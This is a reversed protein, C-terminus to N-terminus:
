VNQEGITTVITTVIKNNEDRTTLISFDISKRGLGGKQEMLLFGCKRALRQNVPRYLEGCAEVRPKGRAPLWDSDLHGMAM